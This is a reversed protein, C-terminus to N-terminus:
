GLDSWHWRGDWWRQVVHGNGGIGFVDYRGDGWSAATLSGSIAGRGIRSPPSGLDSWHWRGNWWLQIVNGNRGIGFVDVRRPGWAAAALPDIIGGGGV